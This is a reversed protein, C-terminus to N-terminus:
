IGRYARVAQLLARSKPRWGRLDAARVLCLWPLAAAFSLATPSGYNFAYFVLQDGGITHSTLDLNYLADRVTVPLENLAFTPAVARQVANYVSARSPAAIGARACYRRLQEAVANIAPKDRTHLLRQLEGEAREHIRAVGRDSRPGRARKQLRLEARAISQTISLASM